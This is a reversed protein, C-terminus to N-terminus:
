DRRFRVAQDRCMGTFCPGHFVHEPWAFGLAGASNGGGRCWASQLRPTRCFAPPWPQAALDRPAPLGGIPGRKQVSGEEPALIVAYRRQNGTTQLLMDFRILLRPRSLVSSPRSIRAFGTPRATRDTSLILLIIMLLIILM